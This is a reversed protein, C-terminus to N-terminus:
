EITWQAPQLGQSSVGLEARISRAISPSCTTWSPPCSARRLRLLSDRRGLCRYAKSACWAFRSHSRRHVQVVMMCRRRLRLRPSSLGGRLVFVAGDRERGFSRVPVRELFGLRFAGRSGYAFLGGDAHILRQHILLLQVVIYRLVQSINRRPRTHPHMSPMPFSCGPPIRLLLLTLLLRPPLIIKINNHIKLPEQRPMTQLTPPPYHIRLNNIALFRQSPAPPLRPHLPITLIKLDPLFLRRAQLVPTFIEANLLSTPRQPNKPNLPPNNPQILSVQFVIQLSQYSASLISSMHVDGEWDAAPVHIDVGGVLSIAPSDRPHPIDEIKGEEPDDGPGKQEEEGLAPGDERHAPAEQLATM